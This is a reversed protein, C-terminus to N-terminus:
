RIVIDEITSESDSALASNYDVIAFSSINGNFPYLDGGDSNTYKGITIKRSAVINHPAPLNLIKVKAGDVFM